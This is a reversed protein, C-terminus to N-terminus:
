AVECLNIGRASLWPLPTKTNVMTHYDEVMQFKPGESIVQRFIMDENLYMKWLGDNEDMLCTHLNAMRDALKIPRAWVAFDGKTLKRQIDTQREKRNKGRGTCAEVMGAVAFGFSENLEDYTVETDELVDHLWGAVLNCGNYQYHALIDVVMQLHFIYPRDPDKPGTYKQDGHALRAVLKAASLNM